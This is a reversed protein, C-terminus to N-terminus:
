GGTGEQEENDEDGAEDVRPRVLEVGDPLITTFSVVRGEEDEDFRIKVSVNLRLAWLGNEDPPYLEFAIPQNPPKLALRDNQILVQVNAGENEDLYNGVYKRALEMDLPPEPRKEAKGKPLEFEMGAQHLRMGTVAGDEDRDFSIAVDRTMVFYWRGEDDPDELEFVLQGPVDVALHGNRTVVTFDVDRYPGFNAIYTGLYPRYDDPIEAVAEARDPNILFRDIEEELRLVSMGGRSQTFFLVMLDLEPWAWAATGDSGSHGIVIPKTGEPAGAPLWLQAMQGYYTELGPFFTPARTDSGLTSMESVPTLTRTVAEPSLISGNPTKGGDLWMALFRAYDRPTSYVSQSGWACPYLPDDGPKWYKTWNGAAGVYLNAISEIHPNDIGRYFYFSGTMGLPNLLNDRVFEELPQGSVAAVVAGLVDAGSDSYWFRSGPDYDPGWEGVANAMAQLDPYERGTELITLPLGSRHTLLQEVTIQGSEDNEFGPIYAAAKDQLSLKGRDILLQAAAGTIAKTMSRINCTTNKEWAIEEEQDRFGFTEHLVTKRNKIVLLEAGVAFDRDIYDQVVATLAELAEPSMQQSQPSAEPFAVPEQAAAINGLTATISLLVLVIRVLRGM